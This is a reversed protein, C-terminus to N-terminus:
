NELHCRAWRNLVFLSWVRSWSTKDQLFRKWVRGIAREDVCQKLSPVITNFEAEM